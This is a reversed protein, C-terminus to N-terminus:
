SSTKHNELAFIGFFIITSRDKILLKATNLLILM